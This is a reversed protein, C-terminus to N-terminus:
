DGRGRGSKAPAQETQRRAYDEEAAKLRVAIVNLARQPTAIGTKSKKQFVHRVYVRDAFRVTYVARYTDRDHDELIELVGAGGFGRLPKASAAKHGLQAQLLARGFGQRVEPPMDKMDKRASGIFGVPKRKEDDM